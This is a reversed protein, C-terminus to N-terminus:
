GGSKSNHNKMTSSVSKRTGGKWIPCNPIARRKSTLKGNASNLNRKRSPTHHPNNNAKELCPRRESYEKFSIVTIPKREATALGM